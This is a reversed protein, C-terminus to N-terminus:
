KITKGETREDLPWEGRKKGSGALRPVGNWYSNSPSASGIECALGANGGNSLNGFRWPCRVGASNSGSFGSKYRASTSGGFISPILIGLVTRVFEKVYNWGSKVGIMRIGTDKYWSSISSDLHESDRCEHVAYDFGGDANSTVNYLPDLGLAYAGDLVEVGAIRAPYKGNTLNGLCGDKHGPVGETSGRHWPMTCLHMATTTDFTKGGNDVYVAGYQAGEIEVTEIKSIRKMTFAGGSAARASPTLSVTSGVVLNAAQATTIIVREVGTEAVAPTYDYSYNTCGDLINSNELTFHRMQWANLLWKTDCDNWLGEYNNRRRAATLGASASAFNYAPKGAGSTLRNQSDLCGGFTPHWTMARVTNDPAVDGAFPAYGTEQATKWSKYNGNEDEWEKLWLAASFTYVPATEGSIDFADDGELALVDMTGDALSVANGRIYWTMPDEDAWDAGPNVTDTALGAPQKGALDDLPTMADSTSQDPLTWRLTYKKDKWAYAMLRFWRELHAYASEGDRMSAPWWLGFVRTTNTGDLMAAYLSDNMDLAMSRVENIAGPINKADTQLSSDLIDQKENLANKLEDDIEDQDAATRYTDPVEQLASAGAAAGSRIEELDDIVNQKETLKTDVTAKDYSNNIDRKLALKRDVTEKDYVNEGDAKGNWTQKEADTVTRHEADGTLESLKTPLETKKAYDRLDVKQAELEMPQTGNWWYDPVDVAEILLNDGIVLDAVHAPDDLWSIMDAYTEFVKAGAKGRAIAEATEATAIAENARAIAGTSEDTVTALIVESREKASVAGNRATEAATKATEARQAIEQMTGITQEGAQRVQQKQTNGESKVAEVAEAKAAEVADASKRAADAHDRAAEASANSNRAAMTADREARKAEEAAMEARSANRAAEAGVAVVRDVWGKQPEPPEETPTGLADSVYTTWVESKALVDGVYYQLEASGYGPRSTDANSVIWIADGDILDLAVPYPQEDGNRQVILQAVGYGLADRWASFDFIVQRANHEGERGIMLPHGCVAKIPIM